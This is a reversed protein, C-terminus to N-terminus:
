NKLDNILEDVSEYIQSRGLRNDEDARKEKEQWEDTWYYSQPAKWDESLETVYAHEKKLEEDAVVIANDRMEKVKQSMVLGHNIKYGKGYCNINGTEYCIECEPCICQRDGFGEVSGYCVECYIDYEPPDLWGM